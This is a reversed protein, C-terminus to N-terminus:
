HVPLLGSRRFPARATPSPLAPLPVTSFWIETENQVHLQTDAWVVCLTANNGPATGIYDGFFRGPSFCTSGPAIYYIDSVPPVGANVRVNRSAHYGGRFTVRAAYVDMRGYGNRRDYFALGLSNDTLHSIAPMFRDGSRADNVRRSASWSGGGNRSRSLVIDTDVSGDPHRANVQEWAAFLVGRSNVTVAPMTLSRLSGPVAMRPMGIFKPGVNRLPGFHLGDDSSARMVLQTPVTSTLSSEPFRSWFVYVQHHPGVVPVTGFNDLVSTALMQAKSFTAGGDASRSYWIDSSRDHWRSWTVFIHSSHGPSDEVVMNPKDDAADADVVHLPRWSRGKDISHTLLVASRGGSCYSPTEGLYSFFVTGQRDIAVTTDAGTTYPSLIPASASVFSKGADRSTFVGPAFAGDVPAGYNTNSTAVITSPQRPDVAVVPETRGRALLVNQSQAGTQGSYLWVAAIAMLLGPLSRALLM